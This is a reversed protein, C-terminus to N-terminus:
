VLYNKRQPELLVKYAEKMEAVFSHIENIEAESLEPKVRRYTLREGNDANVIDIYIKEGIESYEPYNEIIFAPILNIAEDLDYPLQYTKRNNVTKIFLDRFYGLCSQHKTGAKTYCNALDFRFIDIGIAATDTEENYYCMDKNWVRRDVCSHYDFSDTRVLNSDDEKAGWLSILLTNGDDDIVRYIEMDGSDNEIPVRNCRGNGIWITRNKFINQHLRIREQNIPPVLHNVLVTQYIVDPDDSVTIYRYYEMASRLEEFENNLLVAM